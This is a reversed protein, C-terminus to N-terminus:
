QGCGRLTQRPLRKPILQSHDSHCSKSGAVGRGSRPPMTERRRPCDINRGL